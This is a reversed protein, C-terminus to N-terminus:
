AGPKLIVNINRESAVALTVYSSIYIYDNRKQYATKPMACAKVEKNPSNKMRNILNDSTYGQGYSFLYLTKQFDFFTGYGFAEILYEYGEVEGGECPYEEAGLAQLNANRIHFIHEIGEPKPSYKVFRDDEAATEGLVSHENKEEVHYHHKRNLMHLFTM